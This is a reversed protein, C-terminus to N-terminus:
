PKYADSDKVSVIQGHQFLFWNAARIMGGFVNKGRYNCGVLWGETTYYVPTCSDIEISDPDNAVAKLYRTVDLYSGDWPSQTPPEGFQAVRQDHVAKEQAKRAEELRQQEAIKGVFYDYKQKYDPEKPDLALLRGYLEKNKPYDTSPVKSVESLIAKEKLKTNLWAVEAALEKLKPDGTFAYENIKATADNLNGKEIQNKIDLLIAERQKAFEKRKRDRIENLKKQKQALEEASPKRTNQDPSDPAVLIGLILLALFGIFLTALFKTVASTGRPAPAGCQPCVKAKTSVDHGCEKCSKIAM